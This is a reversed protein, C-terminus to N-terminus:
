AAERKARARLLTLAEEVRDEPVFVHDHLTAAIVNCPIDAEALTASVAATLGVGNLDSFVQLTIQAMADEGDEAPVLVSIGEAERFMAQVNTLAMLEQESVTRFAWLGPARVPNMGAIMLSSDFVPTVM